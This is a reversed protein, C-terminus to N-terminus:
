KSRQMKTAVHGGLLHLSAFLTLLGAIIALKPGAMTPSAAIRAVLGIGLGCVAVLAGIAAATRRFGLVMAALGVAVILPAYPWLQLATRQWGDIGLRGFAGALQFSSRRRTGTEFWPMFLSSVVLTQGVAAAWWALRRM